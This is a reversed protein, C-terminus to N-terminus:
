VAVTLVVEVLIGPRALQVGCTTRAPKPCGKLWECWLTNMEGYDRALSSMLIQANLIESKGVSLEDLASDISQLVETFQRKIDGDGLKPTIGALYAVGNYIVARSYRDSGAIRSIEHRNDM